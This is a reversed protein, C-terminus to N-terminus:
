RCWKLRIEAQAAVGPQLGQLRVWGFWGVLCFLITRMNPKEVRLARQLECCGNIPVVIYRVLSNCSAALKRGPKELFFVCMLRALLVMSEARGVRVGFLKSSISTWGVFSGGKGPARSM